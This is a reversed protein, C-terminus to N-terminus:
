RMYLLVSFSYSNNLLLGGGGLVMNFVPQSYTNIPTKPTQKM